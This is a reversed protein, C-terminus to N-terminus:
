KTCRECGDHAAQPDFGAAYGRNYMVPYDPDPPAPGIPQAPPCSAIRDTDARGHEVGLAYMPSNAATM